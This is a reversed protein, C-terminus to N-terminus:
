RGKKPSQRPPLQPCAMSTRARPDQKVILCQCRVLSTADDSGGPIKSQDARRSRRDHRYRHGRNWRRSDGRQGLSQEARGGDGDHISQGAEPAIPTFRM